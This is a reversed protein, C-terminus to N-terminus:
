GHKPVRVSCFRFRCKSDLGDFYRGLASHVNLFDLVASRSKDIGVLDVESLGRDLKERIVRYSSEFDDLQLPM